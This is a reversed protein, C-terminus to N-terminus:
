ISIAKFGGTERRQADTLSMKLQTNRPEKNNKKPENEEIVTKILDFIGGMRSM